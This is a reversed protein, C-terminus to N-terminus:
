KGIHDNPKIVPPAASTSRNRGKGLGEGSERRHVDFCVVPWLGRSGLTRQVYVSSMGGGKAGPEDASPLEWRLIVKLCAPEADNSLDEGLCM